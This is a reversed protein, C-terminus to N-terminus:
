PAAASTSTASLLGPDVPPGPSHIPHDLPWPERCPQRREYRALNAALRPVDAQLGARRASELVGRQVGVAGAFDGREALTMALTEGIEINKFSKLLDDVIVQARMGDRVAEDPATALIRALTHAVDPRDPHQRVGEVFWDRAERYRGLRVLAIGYGIRADANKPNIRLAAGYSALSDQVRGARRQADALAQWAEVYNPSFRVAASLHRVAEPGRGSSAMLVGLSYHAKAATEDLGGEPANRLTEEFLTMAGRVDGNLYMATALKHRLSRGLTTTAPTIKVGQEFFGAAAKFDRQELARVGRLEYSLGSELSLDLEQRMPDPVLVETNRWQRLHEEAKATQGLARYASALPSHVSAAEPDIALAEELASVARAYDRQALATQGLGFLVAPVRPALTRAREFLPGAREAEGQDLYARGLWILTPVDDPAIELVKTFYVVADAPRGRSKSLHALFYPWRPERPMLTQANRYAPEAAEYYEGAHLVMGLGGFAAGKEAETVGPRALVAQLAAYREKVQEQVNPDNRSVDPLTVELLAAPVPAAAGPGPSSSCASALLVLGAVLWSAPGGALLCSLRARRRPGGIM